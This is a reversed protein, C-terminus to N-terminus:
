GSVPPERPIVFGPQDVDLENPLLACAFNKLRGVGSGSPVFDKVILSAFHDAWDEESWQTDESKQLPLQEALTWPSAKAVCNLSETFPTSDLNRRIYKSVIHGIEHALIGAGLEPYHVSFWSLSIQNNLVDTADSNAEVPLKECFELIPPTRESQFYDEGQEEGQLIFKMLTQWLVTEASSFTARADVRAGAVSSETSGARQAGKLSKLVSGVSDTLLNLEDEFGHTTGRQVHNYGIKIALLRRQIKPLDEKEVFQQVVQMAKAKLQNVLEGYAQTRLRSQETANMLNLRTRCTRRLDDFASMPSLGPPLLSRMRKVAQDLRLVVKKQPFEPTYFLLTEFSELSSAIKLYQDVESVSLESGSRARTLLHRQAPSVVWPMLDEGLHRSVKEHLTELKLADMMRATQVEDEKPYLYKLRARLFGEKKRLIFDIPDILKAREITPILHRQLIVRIFNREVEDKIEAELAVENVQTNDIFDDANNLKFAIHAFHAFRAFPHSLIKAQESETMEQLPRYTDLASRLLLDKQIELEQDMQYQVLLRPELENEWKLRFPVTEIKFSSPLTTLNRRHQDSGCLSQVCSKIQEPEVEAPRSYVMSYVESFPSLFLIAGVMAIYQKKVSLIYM